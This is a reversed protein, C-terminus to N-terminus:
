FMRYRDNHYINKLIAIVIGIPGFFFIWGVPNKRLRLSEGLAISVGLWFLVIVIISIIEM